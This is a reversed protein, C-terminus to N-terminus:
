GICATAYGARQLLEAMTEEEPNIGRMAVPQLVAAGVASVHLGVRRPYCGTMFAARSPTCVGSASYFSTFRRGEAAM